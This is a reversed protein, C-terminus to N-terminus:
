IAYEGRNLFRYLPFAIMSVLILLIVNGAISLGYFGNIYQKYIVSALVDSSFGPGGQTMSWVLGFSRLGGIFSLIIVTNRAPRVLPVTIKAFKTLSNGGDVVCAEYYETPIAKIGAIYIVTSVGVGKWIDTLIISYLALRPNGLWDPGVVGLLSLVQNILGKTPHMLSSFMIGVALPSLINPFYIVTELFGKTRLKSCCVVALFLGLIVKCGSSLVAYVITNSLSKVLAYEQFFSKYNDFGIYTWTSLDWRTFSFFFSMLTPFVFIIGYVLMGPVLFSYSYYRDLAAHKSMDVAIGRFVKGRIDWLIGGYYLRMFIDM